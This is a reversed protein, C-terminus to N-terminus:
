QFLGKSGNIQLKQKEAVYAPIDADAMGNPISIDPIGPTKAWRIGMANSITYPKGESSFSTVEKPPNFGEPPTYIVKNGIQQLQTGAGPTGSKGMGVLENRPVSGMYKPNIPSVAENPEPLQIVSGYPIEGKPTFPNTAIPAAQAQPSFPDGRLNSPLRTPLKSSFGPNEPSGVEPEVANLKDFKAAIRNISNIEAGRNAYFEDAAPLMAGPYVPKPSPKFMAEMMSPGMRYGAAGGAIAGYPSGHSLGYASGIAAGGIQSATRVGPRMNGDPSFAADSIAGKTRRLAEPVLPSAAQVMPAATAGWVGSTDGSRAAEEMASANTFPLAAGVRYALGAGEKKRREDAQRSADAMASKAELDMGPYPSVGSPIFAQGFNSAFGGGERDSGPRDKEFQTPQSSLLLAIKKQMPHGTPLKGAIEQLDAVDQQSLNQDDAM